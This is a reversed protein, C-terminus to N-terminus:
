KARRKPKTLELSHGFPRVGSLDVLQDLTTAFDQPDDKRGIGQPILYCKSQWKHDRDFWSVVKGFHSPVSTGALKGVAKHWIPVVVVWAERFQESLERVSDELKLWPGRNLDPSQPVINTMANTEGAEINARYSALPCLHGMDFGSGEYDAPKLEEDLEAHFNRELVNSGLLDRLTVCYACWLAMRRKKSFAVAYCHRHQIVVDQYDAVPFRLYHYSQIDGVFSEISATM